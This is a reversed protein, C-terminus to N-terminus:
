SVSGRLAAIEKATAPRWREKKKKREISEPSYRISTVLKGGPSFVHARGREGLVILTKRRADALISEDGARALDTLAMRTPRDGEKHRHQAHGTRRDRSRRHHELRRAIGNLVGEIRGSLKEPTSSKQKQSREISELASQSWRVAATWRISGLREYLEGLPEGDPGAGLVNLGLRRWGRKKRGKIATSVVQFTLALVGPTGDRRPVPFWGAAVQGHIRYDVESERFAPLMQSSLDAGSALDTVLRPPKSYLRDVQPHQRELLWQGFDQFRPIGTPGYGAFVVRSSEPASHECDAAACRPCFVRGPRFAAHHALLSDLEGQLVARAEEVLESSVEGPPVPIRLSLELHNDRGGALHGLPHKSLRQRAARTLAELATQLDDGAGRRPSSM